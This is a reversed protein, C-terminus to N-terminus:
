ARSCASSSRRSWRRPRVGRALAGVGSGLLLSLGLVVLPLVRNSSRMALGITSNEGIARFVTGIPSPHSLPYAGVALVVGTVVLLVCFARYRWRVLAACALALAPLAFSVLVGLSHSMYGSSAQTWPQIKDNGYFYWYGLGRLVESSLSTLTVTPFTETYRLVNIGYAGEAWLGAVWWLSVVASLVGAKLTTRAVEPWSAEKSLGGAGAVARARAGVLLVSTANVGGILAVVLAFLAPYRWGGRRVAVVIFGVLWGLGAWPMLIASTRALYDLLYPTLMYTLAAALQGWASVGLLRALYRVGTGAAFLLTGMWATPRDLHPVGLVHFLWYWPGM